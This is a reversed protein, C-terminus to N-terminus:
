DERVVKIEKPKMAPQSTFGSRWEIMKSLDSEVRGIRLDQVQDIGYQVAIVKDLKASIEDVKNSLSYYFGCAIATATIAKVIESLSFKMESFKSM